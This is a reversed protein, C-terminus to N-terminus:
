TAQGISKPCAINKMDGTWVNNLVENVLGQKKLITNVSFNRTPLVHM